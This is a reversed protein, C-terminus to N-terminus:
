KIKRLRFNGYVQKISTVSIFSKPDADRVLKIVQPTEYTSVIAYIIIREEGTFAGKSRVITAGHPINALLLKPLNEVKTIIQIQEKKNTRTILDIVTASVFSFITVFLLIVIANAVADPGPTGSQVESFGSLIAFLAFIVSNILINYRGINSSKRMSYYYGITDVGGSSGGCAFSFSSAVGSFIGALMARTLLGAQIISGNDLEIVCAIQTALTDIFKFNVFNTLLSTAVVNITTFLAFRFSIKRFALIIIPVNIIAYSVSYILTMNENTGTSMNFILAIIRALGSSGGSILPLAQPTGETMTPSQFIKFTLAFLLAAFLTILISYFYEYFIKTKPHKNLYADVRNKHNEFASKM